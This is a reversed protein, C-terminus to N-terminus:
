SFRTSICLLLCKKISSTGSEHAKAMYLDVTPCDYYGTTPFHCGRARATKEQRIRDGLPSMQPGDTTKSAPSTGACSWKMQTVNSIIHM